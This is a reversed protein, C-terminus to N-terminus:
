VNDSADHDPLNFASDAHVHSQPASKLSGDPDIGNGGNGGGNGGPPISKVRHASDSGNVTRRSASTGRGISRGSGFSGSSTSSSARSHMRLIGVPPTSDSATHPAPPKFNVHAKSILTTSAPPQDGYHAKLLAQSAMEEMREQEAEAADLADDAEYRPDDVLEGAREMIETLRLAAAYNEKSIRIFRLPFELSEASFDPVYENMKLAGRALLTWAGVESLFGEEGAIIKLKGQLLLVAHDVREGRRLVSVTKQGGRVSTVAASGDLSGDDQNQGYYNSSGGVLAAALKNAPGDSGAYTEPTINKLLRRLVQERVPQFEAINHLLFTAIARRENKTLRERARADNDFLKLIAPDIRRGKRDVRKRSINDQFVDTEDVIEAGILEEIVDELTVVGVTKYYPDGAADDVLRKVLAMHGRGTRFRNLMFGLTADEFVELLDRGFFTLLSRVPMEDDPDVLILDKAFIVGQVQGREGHYVPLRSHGSQFVAKMTEFDLIENLELMFVRPLPTMVEGVKKEWFELASGLIRTEDRTFKGGAKSKEDSGGGGGKSGGGDGGGGGKERYDKAIERLSENLDDEADGGINEATGHIAVLSKIQKRTYRLEDEGGLVKNLVAATPWAVVWTLAMLVYVLPTAYYGIQLGFRHCVAQPIIEGLYLILVTSTLFGIVGTFLDASVIAIAANVSTNGVLLSVLLQNGRKRVPYIRTAYKRESPTGSDIAVRLDTLDLSLLGLTLGSFTASLLILVVLVPIQWALNSM